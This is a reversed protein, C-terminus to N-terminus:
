ELTDDPEEIDAAFAAPKPAPAAETEEPEADFYAGCVPCRPGDDERLAGCAPCYEGAAVPEPKPAEDPLRKGCASCYKAEKPHVAGCSQCRKYERAADRQETLEKVQLEGARIRTALAEVEGGPDGGYCLRGYRAYLLELAAEAARLEGNLRTVEATEKSKESVSRAVNSFRKSFENLFDM